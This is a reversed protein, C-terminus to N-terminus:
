PSTLHSRFGVASDEADLPRLMIEKRRRPSVPRLLDALDEWKDERAHNIARFWTRFVQEAASRQEEEERQRSAQEREAREQRFRDEEAEERQELRSALARAVEEEERQRSAVEEERQRSAVQEAAAAAAEVSAAEALLEQERQALGRREQDLEQDLETRVSCM